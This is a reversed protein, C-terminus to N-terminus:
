GGKKMHAAFADKFDPHWRSLAPRNLAIDQAGWEIRLADMETTTENDPCLIYFDGRDLGAALREVVQEPTWAADPKTPVRKAILGTYTFGPILLHASVKCGEISRLAHQLGETLTKVAAKTTNYALDGPPNTIGQKSGTNVIAARRGQAILAPTFAQVGHVVGWFNTAFVARWKDYGDFAGAGGARGANNMVLAIDAGRATLDDRLRTVAEFEGVDLARTEVAGGLQAAAQALADAERDVAVVQMGAAVCHRAMALGIGSAAGTIVATRGATFIEESM